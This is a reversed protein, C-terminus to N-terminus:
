SSSSFFLGKEPDLIEQITIFYLYGLVDFDFKMILNKEPDTQHLLRLEAVVRVSLNTSKSEFDGKPFFGVVLEGDDNPELSTEIKWPLNRVICYHPSVKREKTEIFKTFDEIVLQFTQIPSFKFM